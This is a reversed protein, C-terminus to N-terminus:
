KGQPKMGPTIKLPKTPVKAQKAKVDDWVAQQVDNTPQAAWGAECAKRYSTFIIPKMDARTMHACIPAGLTPPFISPNQLSDYDEPSSVPWLINGATGPDYAGCLISYARIIAKKVREQAIRPLTGKSIARANVVAWGSEPAVLSFPLTDDEILFLTANADTKKSLNAATTISFADVCPQVKTELKIGYRLEAIYAHLKPEPLISQANAICIWGKGSDPKEVIGGMYNDLKQRLEGPKFKSPVNQQISDAGADQHQEAATAVAGVLVLIACFIPTKM